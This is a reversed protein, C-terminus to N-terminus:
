EVEVEEVICKPVSLSEGDYSVLLLVETRLWQEVDQTTSAGANDNHVLSLLLIVVVTCILTLYRMIRESGCVDM